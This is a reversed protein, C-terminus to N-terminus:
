VLKECVDTCIVTHECLVRKTGTDEKQNRLFCLTSSPIDLTLVERSPLVTADYIRFKCGKKVEIRRATALTFTIWAFFDSSVTSKDEQDEEHEQLAIVRHKRNKKIHYHAYGLVTIKMNEPANIWPGRYQGLITVDTRTRTSKRPNTIDFFTKQRAFTKNQLFMSKKSRISRLFVLKQALEGTTAKSRIRKKFQSTSACSNATSATIFRCDDESEDGIDDDEICATKKSVFSPAFSFSSKKEECFLKEEVSPAEEVVIREILTSNSYNHIM